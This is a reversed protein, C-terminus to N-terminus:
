DPNIKWNPDLFQQIEILYGNPDRLFFHYINYKTNIAPAKDTEVGRTQLYSYWEDVAPTVLTFIIGHRRRNEEVSPADAHQCFGIYSEPTLSYIRCIGQDTKLSLGVIKEYFNSTKELDNTYFFTIQQHIPPHM